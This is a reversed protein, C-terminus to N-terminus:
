YELFLRKKKFFFLNCQDYGVFGSMLRLIHRGSRIVFLEKLLIPSTSRHLRKQAKRTM